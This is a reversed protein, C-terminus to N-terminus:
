TSLAPLLGHLKKNEKNQVAEKFLKEILEQRRDSLKILGSEVSTENYSPFPFIISIAQKQVGELENSLYTPHSDYFVPHAYETIPRICTCFFQVLERTGVTESM